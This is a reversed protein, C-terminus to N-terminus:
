KKGRGTQCWPVFRRASGDGQNSAPRSAARCNEEGREQPATERRAVKGVQRDAETARASIIPGPDGTYPLVKPAIRAPAVREMQSATLGAKIFRPANRVDPALVETVPRRVQAANPNSVVADANLGSNKISIIRSGRPQPQTITPVVVAPATNISPVSPVARDTDDDRNRRRRSM